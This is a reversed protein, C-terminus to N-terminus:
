NENRGGGWTGMETETVTEHQNTCCLETHNPQIHPPINKVIANWKKYVAQKGNKLKIKKWQKVKHRKERVLERSKQIRM